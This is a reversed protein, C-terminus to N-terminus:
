NVIEQNKRACYVKFVWASKSTKGSIKVTVTSDPSSFQVAPNSIGRTYTKSSYILNKDSISGTKGNYIEVLAPFDFLNYWIKFTGTNLNMKFERVITKKDKSEILSSCPLVGLAIDVSDDEAMKVRFISDQSFTKKFTLYGLASIEFSQPIKKDVAKFNAFGNKDAQMETVM